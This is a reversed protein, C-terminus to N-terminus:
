FYHSANHMKQLLDRDLERLSVVTDKIILQALEDPIPIYLIQYKLFMFLDFGSNAEFMIDKQSSTDNTKISLHTGNFDVRHFNYGGYEDLPKKWDIGFFWTM